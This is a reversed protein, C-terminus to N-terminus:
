HVMPVLRRRWEGRSPRLPSHLVVFGPPKQKLQLLHAQIAKGCNRALYTPEFMRESHASRNDCAAEAVLMINRSLIEIFSAIEDFENVSAYTLARVVWLCAFFEWDPMM